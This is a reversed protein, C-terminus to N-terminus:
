QRDCNIICESPLMIMKTRTIYHLINKEPIVKRDPPCDSSSEVSLRFAIFIYGPLFGHANVKEKPLAKCALTRLAHCPL